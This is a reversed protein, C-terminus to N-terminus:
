KRTEHVHTCRRVWVGGVSLYKCLASSTSDVHLHHTNKRQFLQSLVRTNIGSICCHVHKYPDEQFNFWHAQTRVQKPRSFQLLMPSTDLDRLVGACDYCSPERTGQIPRRSGGRRRPSCFICVEAGNASMVASRRINRPRGACTADLKKSLPSGTFATSLPSLVVVLFLLLSRKHRPSVMTPHPTHGQAMAM